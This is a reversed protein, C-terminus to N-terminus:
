PGIYAIAYEPRFDPKDMWAHDSDDPRQNEPGKRNAEFTVGSL